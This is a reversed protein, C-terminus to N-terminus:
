PEVLEVKTSEKNINKFGMLTETLQEASEEVRFAESMLHHEQLGSGPMLFLKLEQKGASEKFALNTEEFAENLKDPEGNSKQLAGIAGGTMTTTAGACKIQVGGSPLTILMSPISVNTGLHALGSQFQALPIHVDGTPAGLSSCNFTSSSVKVTCELFLILVHGLTTNLFLGNSQVHACRILEDGTTQFVSLGALSLFEVGAISGNTAKFLLEGASASSAAVASLAFVAMLCLGTTRIRKM